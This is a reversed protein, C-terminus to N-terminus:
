GYLEEFAEKTKKECYQCRCGDKPGNADVFEIHKEAQDLLKDYVKPHVYLLGPEETSWYGKGPWSFKQESM